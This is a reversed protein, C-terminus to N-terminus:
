LTLFEMPYYGPTYAHATSCIWGEILIVLILKQMKTLITWITKTKLYTQHIKQMLKEKNNLHFFFSTFFTLSKTHYVSCMPIQAELIYFWWGNIGIYNLFIIETSNELVLEIKNEICFALTEIKM